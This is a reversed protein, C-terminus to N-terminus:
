TNMISREYEPFYRAIDELDFEELIATNPENALLFTFSKGVLDEPSINGQTLKQYYEERMHVTHVTEHKGSVTVTFLAEPLQKLERISFSYKM